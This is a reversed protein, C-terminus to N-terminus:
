VHSQVFKPRKTTEMQEVEMEPDYEDGMDQGENESYSDQTYYLQNGLGRQRGRRRRMDSASGGRGRGYQSENTVRRRIVRLPDNRIGLLDRREVVLSGLTKSPRLGLGKAMPFFTAQQGGNEGEDQQTNRREMQRDGIDREKEMCSSPGEVEENEETQEGGKEVNEERQFIEQCENIHSTEFGRRENKAEDHQESAARSRKIKSNMLVGHEMTM